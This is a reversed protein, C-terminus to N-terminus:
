EKLEGVINLGIVFSSFGLALWDLTTMATVHEFYTQKNTSTDVETTIAHVSGGCLAHQESPVHSGYSLFCYDSDIKFEGTIM